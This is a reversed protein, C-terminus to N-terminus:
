PRPNPAHPAAAPVVAPATPPTYQVLTATGAGFKFDVKFRVPLHREDQAIWVRVTSGRKFMGKPPGKEMKPVLVLCNFTGLPTSVEEFREAYVTLEYLDDDFIALIDRHGGVPINWTRTQLLSTILDLPDGAPLPLTRTREPHLPNTYLFNQKNYDFVLSSQTKKSETASKESLSVLRGTALDFISEASADFAYLSHAVGRTRTTTVVQLKGPDAPLADAAIKIEGAGFFLGWGVRYTLAEGSQLVLARPAPAAAAQLALLLFIFYAAFRM